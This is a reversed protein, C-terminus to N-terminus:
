GFNIPVQGLGRDGQSGGGDEKLPQSVRAADQMNSDYICSIDIIVEIMDSCLEFDEPHVPTSDTAVYLKSVVDFLFM